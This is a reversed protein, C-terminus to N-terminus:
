AAEQQALVGTMRTMAETITDIDHVLAVRIHGAGPNPQGRGLYAGPLVRLGAERWLLRAAAEGDGVELWAFFGGDPAPSTFRAGLAARAAQFGEANAQRNAAAHADDEWLATAAHLVPLPSSAGAYSRLKALAAILAADGAMFGSRLGAANSRKSLSHFTLLQDVGGGLAVAAQLAGACPAELWLETYCEDVILTVDHARALDLAHALYDLSAAAGQPNAPSCLVMAGARDLTTRDLAALDPLYGTEATAPMLVVEAGAMRAAGEYVAYGPDPLLALPARDADRGGLCLDIAMFLAERTGSCPLIMTEPDILTGPLDFRRMLWGAAAARFEPTGALPPYRRWLDAPAERLTRTLLDPPPRQPEGIALDIVARDDPPLVGDLLARLRQFPYPPLDALQAPLM